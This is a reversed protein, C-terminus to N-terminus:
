KEKIIKREEAEDRTEHKKKNKNDEWKSQKKRENRM